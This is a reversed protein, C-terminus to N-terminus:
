PPFHRSPRPAPPHTTRNSIPIMHESRPAAGVLINVPLRSGAVCKFLPSVDLEDTFLRGPRFNDLKPRFQDAEALNASTSQNRFTDQRNRASIPGVRVMQQGVDAWSRSFKSSDPWLQGFHTWIPGVNASKPGSKSLMPGSKALNCHRQGCDALNHRFRSAHDNERTDNRLAFQTLDHLSPPDNSPPPHAWAEFPPDGM